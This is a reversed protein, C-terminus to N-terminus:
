LSGEILSDKGSHLFYALGLPFAIGIVIFGFALVISVLDVATGSRWTLDYLQSFAFLM